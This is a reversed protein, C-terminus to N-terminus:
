SILIETGTTQAPRAIGPVAVMASTEVVHEPARVQGDQIKIIRDACDFYADDHTIVMVTKGRAKLEPLLETYFARKFAPDQDAAWEDFLYAPRDELYASVLALRKRQGASLDITSFRGDIIEVKHSMGLTDLYHAARAALRPADGGLLHEFLHFDAFVASFRQRYHDRNADTVPQGNLLITGAEPEYLGLLLMALTTKGSGNGGVIFLLEGPRITLDLPGLTFLSDDREGPYRHRVGRLELSFSGQAAFPDEGPPSSSAPGLEDDLQELKVLSISAQRLTPLAFMVDSLPRILYLLTIVFGTLIESSHPLWAPIVFLLLGICAYFLMVGTSAVLTYGAMGRVFGRRFDRASPALVEEIFAQGRRANLKLEKSGEILSRAHRYLADKLERVKALHALPRREALHFAILGVALCIALVVLLRWSLWALYGLCAAVVVSNIFLIPVWEFANTFTNIDDTLIVLLRHKGLSQLKKLPTALLKRGLDQRLQYLADQTLRLLSLDAGLKALLLLACLGLFALGLGGIAAPTHIGRNILVVLGASALGSLSGLFIALLLLQRSHRILYRFLSV